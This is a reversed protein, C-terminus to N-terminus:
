VTPRLYRRVTVALDQLSIPKRLYDSIGITSADAESFSHSFGTCLIVPVDPRLALIERALRDGRLDPMNYDTIVLDVACPDRRFITLAERSDTVALVRYGLRDLFDRYSDTLEREDDVFLISGTGGCPPATTQAQAETEAAPERAPLLVTFRSGRGPESTVRVTGGWSKVIGDVVSLGLGTGEGTGKTTFFPEFIREVLEPCMGMGTDSVAISLYAGPKLGEASTADDGPAIRVTDLVISLRGGEGRMAHAANTCLNMLVQHVQTPEALVHPEPTRISHEIVISAPLSAELFKVTEKVIPSVRLLATEEGGKRAFTLIQSVLERGRDAAALVNSIKGQLAEDGDCHFMEVLEGNAIIVGLINNFDHAIGGALTGIAEMRQARQLQREKDHLSIEARKRHLAEEFAFLMESLLMVEGPTHPFRMRAAAIIHPRKDGEGQLPVAVIHLDARNAGDGDTARGTAKIVHGAALDGLQGTGLLASPLLSQDWAPGDGASTGLLETITGDENVRAWAAYDSNAIGRAEDLCHLMVERETRCELSGLLVRNISSLAATRQAVQKKLSRNWTLILMVGGLVVGVAGLVAFWFTRSMWFPEYQLSLWKEEIAKREHPLILALGKRLINKLEPMDNRSAMRLDISYNTLGAIRLNSIRANAIYHSALAMDCILADIDGVALARLGGIYGGTTPVLTCDERIRKKLYDMFDPSVTVGIRMGALRDITLDDRFEKRTIIAAPVSVYAQTFDLHRQRDDTMELATVIDVGGAMASQLLDDRNPFRVPNFRLGVKRGILALYDAGLGEFGGDLHYTEYPPYHLSVGVTLGDSHEAIFRREEPTFPDQASRSDCACLVLAVLLILAHVPRITM